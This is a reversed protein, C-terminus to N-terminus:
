FSRGGGGFTNGGSGSHVTSTNGSNPPPNKPIRRTTVHKHILRDQRGHVEVHGHEYPSYKYTNFKLRYRGTIIVCFVACAIGGAIIAVVINGGTLGREKEQGDVVYEGTDSNYTGHGKVIGEDYYKSIDSIMIQFMQGYDEDSAYEYADDLITDIRADTLYTIAEGSTAIYIQRNYMDLLLAAGDNSDALQMFQDEAYEQSSSVFADDVTLLLLDWGTKDELRGVEESLVSIENESLMAAEDYVQQTEAFTRAPFLFCVFVATLVLVIGLIKRLLKKEMQKMM